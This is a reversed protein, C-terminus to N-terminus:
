EPRPMTPGPWAAFGGALSVATHGKTGLWMAVDLSRVGHECYVVTERGADLDGVREAIASMPLHVAGPIMGRGLEHTERIDILAYDRGAGGLRGSLAAADIVVGGSAAEGSM